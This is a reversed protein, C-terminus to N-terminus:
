MYLPALQEWTPVDSLQPKMEILVVACRLDFETPDQSMAANWAADLEFQTAPDLSCGTFFRTYVRRRESM